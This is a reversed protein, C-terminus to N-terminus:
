VSTAVIIIVYLKVVYLTTHVKKTEPQNNYPFYRTSKLQTKKERNIELNIRFMFLGALLMFRICGYHLAVPVIKFKM